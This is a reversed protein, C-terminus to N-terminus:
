RQDQAPEAPQETASSTGRASEAATDIRVTVQLNILRAAAERYQPDIRVRVEVVRLDGRDTPDLSRVENKAVTTSIQVVEGTMAYKRQTAPDILADGTIKAKQHLQVRGIDTEYVEAAAYMQDVCGMRLIPAQGTTEGPQMVVKFIRGDSPARVLSLELKTKALEVGRKLSEIQLTAIMRQRSAKAAQLKVQALKTELDCTKKFNELGREASQLETQAQDVVLQQKQRQQTSVISEDVAQMRKLDDQAVALNNRLSKIKDQQMAIQSRQLDVQKLNVEAEAVQADGVAREIPLQSEAEELAAQSADVEAKRLTHSGLVALVDGKKVNDGEAVKVEALEEGATGSVQIVGSAPQLTGLAVVQPTEVVAPQQTTGPPSLPSNAGTLGASSDLRMPLWHVAAVSAAVSLLITAVIVLATRM